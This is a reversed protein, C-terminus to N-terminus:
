RKMQILDALMEDSTTVTKANAQFARQTEIMSVFENALDVNSKELSKSRVAGLGAKGPDGVIPKGSDLSEAYLSDGKRSLEEVSAFKALLIRSLPKVLGSDFIGEILGDPNIKISELTGSPNGDAGLLNVKHGSAFQTMGDLGTRKDNPDLPNSGEGFDFGYRVLPAGNSFRFEIQTRPEESSKPQAVLIPPGPPTGAPAGVPPPPTQLVGALDGLLRGDDNFQLFGGGVGQIVGASGGEIDEGPVLSYWEWQNKGESGPIPQGTAQNIQAPQNPIKRFAITVTHENGIEDFVSVATSFNYMSSKVNLTNMPIEPPTANSNLNAHVFVGTGKKVGNGTVQPPDVRGLIQIKKPTGISEHSAKDIDLMQVSLGAKTVLYGELDFQFDGARTYLQKGFQDKLVFFGNGDVAMDTELESNEFTGQSFIPTVNGINVGKGISADSGVLSSAFVDKFGVRSYKYGGTNVNAINSGVVTMARSYAKVGSAGTYLSEIM